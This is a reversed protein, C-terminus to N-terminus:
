AHGSSNAATVGSAVLAAELRDVPVVIDRDNYVANHQWTKYNPRQMEPDDAILATYHQGLSSAILWYAQTAVLPPLIELVSCNRPAFLVNTLGAGHVGVVHSCDRFLAIQAQTSLTALEVVEFGYRGLVPVVEDWNLIKRGRTDARSIALRRWPRGAPEDVDLARRLFDMAWRACYHAPHRFDAAINSSFLIQPARISIRKSEPIVIRDAFGMRAVIDRYYPYDDVLFFKGPRVPAREYIAIRTLRDLLFHCINMAGSFRDDLIAVPEDYEIVTDTIFPNTGNALGLVCNGNQDFVYHQELGRATADISFTGRELSFATIGPLSVQQGAAAFIYHDGDGHVLPFTCRAPREIDMSSLGAANSISTTQLAGDADLHLAKALQLMQSIPERDAIGQLDLAALAQASLRMAAANGHRAALMGSRIAERPAFAALDRALVGLLLPRASATDTKLGDLALLSHIIAPLKALPEGAEVLANLYKCLAYHIWAEGTRIKSLVALHIVTSPLPSLNLRDVLQVTSIQEIPLFAALRDLAVDPSRPSRHYHEYLLKGAPRGAIFAAVAALIEADSGVTM